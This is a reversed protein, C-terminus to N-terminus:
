IVIILRMAITPILYRSWVCGATSGCRPHSNLTWMELFTSQLSCVEYTTLDSAPTNSMINVAFADPVENLPLLPLSFFYSSGVLQIYYVPSSLTSGDAIITHRVTEVKM